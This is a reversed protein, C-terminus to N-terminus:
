LRSTPPRRAALPPKPPPLDHLLSGVTRLVAPLLAAVRQANASSAVGSRSRQAVGQIIVANKFFLFALYFGSWEWIAGDVEEDYGPVPRRDDTPSDDGHRQSALACYDQVLEKRSPLGLAALPLHQIGSIGTGPSQPPIFYMMSLNALDCLPDGLTSLEWDLVALIQPRTPHFILNDMKYDGHILCSADPCQQAHKRLQRALAEIRAVADDNGEDIERDSRGDDIGGKPPEKALQAQRRSVSVLRDLQRVVFQGPKGYDALGVSDANVRHLNSLVQVAEHFYASRENAPVDPLSPDSFIRGEVYEMLYFESGLVTSNDCYAYVRPVPVTSTSSQDCDADRRVRENHLALGQLVRFERHLAHASAHAISRPKKRLVLRHQQQQRRCDPFLSPAFTLLYTPNSQGFGFQRVELHQALGGSEKWSADLFFDALAQAQQLM